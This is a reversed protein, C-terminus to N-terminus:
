DADNKRQPRDRKRYILMPLGRAPRLTVRLLPQVTHDPTPKLRFHKIIASVLITAEQLAFTSGICTRPGAGFPLYTFREVLGRAPPLFRSPDYVNPDSWLLSHRHLVYPSIVVLTGRRIAEGALKDPGEAVRSIAAIPPYLRIAEDICARTVPQADISGDFLDQSHEVEAEARDLWDPSQSLLYLAWTVANATTEHGASIFTLINSRIEDNSLPASTDPDRASLLLTLLDDPLPKGSEIQQKRTIIMEEIANMFFRLTPRVKLQAPRPVAMPLGFVDLLSIKGITDFYVAMAQRFEEPDRSFGESFITRDLMELTVRSMEAALDVADVGQREWRRILRNAVAVMRPSFSKVIRASFLPALTRRQIRWRSGEVSLLGEGLGAALIRRQFNDKRYNHANDLLVRKIATSESVVIVDNLPLGGRVTPREFHEHSWCELPNRKLATLLQIPGLRRRNPNPAPPRFPKDVVTLSTLSM